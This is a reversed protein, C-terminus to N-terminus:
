TGAGEIGAQVARPDLDGEASDAQLQAMYEGATPQHADCNPPGCMFEQHASVSQTSVFPNSEPPDFAEGKGFPGRPYDLKFDGGCETCLAPLSRGMDTDGCRLWWQGPAFFRGCPSKKAAFGEPNIADLSIAGRHASSANPFIRSVRFVENGLADKLTEITAKM